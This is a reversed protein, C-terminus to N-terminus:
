NAARARVKEMIKANKTHRPKYDQCKYKLCATHYFAVEKTGCNDSNLCHGVPEMAVEEKPPNKFSARLQKIARDPATQHM